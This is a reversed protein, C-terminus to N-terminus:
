PAILASAFREPTYPPAEALQPPEFLRALLVAWLYRASFGVGPTPAAPASAIEFSPNLNEPADTLRGDELIQLLM